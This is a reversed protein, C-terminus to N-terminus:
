RAVWAFFQRKAPAWDVIRGGSYQYSGRVAVRVKGPDRLCSRPVSISVWDPAYIDATARLGDCRVPRPKDGFADVRALGFGDSNPYVEVLYEPGANKPRTDLWFRFYDGIKLRGPRVAVKINEGNTVRVKTIDARVGTDGAKDYFTRTNTHTSHMTSAYMESPSHIPENANASIQAGALMGAAVAATSLSAIVRNM